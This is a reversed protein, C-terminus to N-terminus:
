RAPHVTTEWPGIFLINLVGRLIFHVLYLMQARALVVALLIAGIVTGVYVITRVNGAFDAFPSDHFRLVRQYFLGSHRKKQAAFAAQYLTACGFLVSCWGLVGVVITESIAGVKFVGLSAEQITAGLLVVAVLLFSFIATMTSLSRVERRLKLYLEYSEKEFPDPTQPNRPGKIDSPELVEVTEARAEILTQTTPRRGRRPARFKAAPADLGNEFLSLQQGKPPHQLSM